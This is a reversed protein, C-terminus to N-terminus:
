RLMSSANGNSINGSIEGECQESNNTKITLSEHSMSKSASEAYV